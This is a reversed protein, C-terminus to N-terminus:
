FALRPNRPLLSARPPRQRGTRKKEAAATIEALYDLHLKQNHIATERTAKGRSMGAKVLLEVMQLFVEKAPRKPTLAPAPSVVAPPAVTAKGGGQQARLHQVNENWTRIQEKTMRSQM